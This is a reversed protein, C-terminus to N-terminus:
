RGWAPVASLMWLIASITAFSLLTTVLLAAACFGERGYKQALIPYISLMPMSAYAVGAARLVPDVPPLVLLLALVALPHVVLKGIAILAVDGLMGGVKLGVLSGGIVFLAVATSATALLGITQMVPEPMTVGAIAVAFGAVIALILPNVALRRLSQALAVHWAHAGGGSEALALTLPLLVINEVLMCLALAVAAPPGLWQLVIPYGVFGSNSFAAGMGILASDPMPKGRVFRALAFAGLLVLLSGGGYAAIFPGNLIEAVPRQALARFVLAPLAFNLVFRGLVRMDAASFMGLRGALFGIGIMLYIPVTIALISLM